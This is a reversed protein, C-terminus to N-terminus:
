FNLERTMEFIYLQICMQFIKIKHEDPKLDTFVCSATCCGFLDSNPVTCTAVLSTNLTSTGGLLTLLTHIVIGGTTATLALKSYSTSTLSANSVLMLSANPLQGPSLMESGPLAQKRISRTSHKPTRKQVM